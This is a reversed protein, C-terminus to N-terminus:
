LSYLLRGIHKSFSNRETCQLPMQPFNTKTSYVTLKALKKINWYSKNKEFRLVMAPTRVDDYGASDCVIDM